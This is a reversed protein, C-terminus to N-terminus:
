AIIGYVEEALCISKELVYATTRWGWGAVDTQTLTIHHLEFLIYRVKM